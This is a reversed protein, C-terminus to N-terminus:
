SDRSELTVRPRSTPLGEWHAPLSGLAALEEVAAHWPARRDGPLWGPLEACATELLPELWQPRGVIAEAFLALHARAREPLAGAVPLTAVAAFPSEDRIRSALSPSSVGLRLSHELVARRVRPARRFLPELDDEYALVVGPWECLADHLYDHEPDDVLAYVVLDYRWLLKRYHVLRLDEVPLRTGAVSEGYGFVTIGAERAIVPLLRDVDDRARAHLPQAPTFWAVNM